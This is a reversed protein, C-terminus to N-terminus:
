RHVGESEMGLLQALRLLVLHEVQVAPRQVGGPYTVENSQRIQICERSAMSTASGPASRPAAACPTGGTGSPAPRRRSPTARHPRQYPACRILVHTSASGPAPEVCPSWSASMTHKMPSGCRPAKPMPCVAVDTMSLGFWRPVERIDGLKWSAYCLRVSGACSGFRKRCRLGFM